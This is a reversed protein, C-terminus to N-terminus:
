KTEKEQNTLHKIAASEIKFIDLSDPRWASEPFRNRHKRWELLVCQLTAPLGLKKYEAILAIVLEDAVHFDVKCIEEYSESYVTLNGVEMGVGVGRKQIVMATRPGCKICSFEASIVKARGIHIFESM